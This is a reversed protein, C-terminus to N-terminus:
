GRRTELLRNRIADISESASIPFLLEPDSESTSRPKRKQDEQELDDDLADFLIGPAVEGSM